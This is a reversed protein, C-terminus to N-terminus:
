SSFWQALVTLGSGWLLGCALGWRWGSRYHQVEGDALGSKYADVVLTEINKTLKSCDDPQAESTHAKPDVRPANAAGGRVLHMNKRDIPTIM